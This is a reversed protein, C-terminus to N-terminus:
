PLEDNDGPVVGQRKGVEGSYHLASDHHKWVMVETWMFLYWRFFFTCHEIETLWLM